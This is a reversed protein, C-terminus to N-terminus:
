AAGDSVCDPPPERGASPFHAEMVAALWAAVQGEVVECSLARALAESRESVTGERAYVARVGGVAAAFAADDPLPLGDPLPAGLGLIIELLRAARTSRAM